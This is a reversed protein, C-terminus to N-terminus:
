LPKLANQADEGIKFLDKKILTNDCFTAKALEAVAAEETFISPKRGEM